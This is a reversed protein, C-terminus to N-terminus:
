NAPVDYGGSAVAFNFMRGSFLPKVPLPAYQCMARVETGSSTALELVLGQGNIGEKREDTAGIRVVEGRAIVLIEGQKIYGYSHLVFKGVQTDVELAGTGTVKLDRGANDNWRSFTFLSNTLVAMVPPSAWVDFVGKQFGNGRLKGAFQQLLDFSIASGGCDFRQPRWQPVTTNDIGAFTGITQFIGSVGLASAGVWGAPVIRDGATVAAGPVSSTATSMLMVQCKNPDVVGVVRINTTRVTIGDTQMIDVMMGKDTETTQTGGSGSNLWLLRAWTAGTIRVTPATASNYNPGGSAVADIVGIDSGATTTTGAGYLSMMESHHQLGLLMSYYIWDPGSQYAAANGSESAGNDMKMLDSYSLQEQMYLNVGDLTALLNKGSRSGRLTVVNGTNDPTMGQSIAVMIPMQFEKGSKDESPVFPLSMTFTNPPLIPRQWDGYRVTLLASLTSAAM